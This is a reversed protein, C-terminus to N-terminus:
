SIGNGNIYLFSVGLNKCFLWTYLKFASSDDMDRMIPHNHLFLLHPYELISVSNLKRIWNEPVIACISIHQFSIPWLKIPSQRNKRTKLPSLLYCYLLRLLYSESKQPWFEGGLLKKQFSLDHKWGWGADLWLNFLM